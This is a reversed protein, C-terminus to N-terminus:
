EYSELLALLFRWTKGISPLYIREDPSHPQRITPGLSIMEMGPCISGIVACELGAHIAEVKPEESFLKAYVEKSRKLLQSSTDPRWAPYSNQKGVEAGAIKGAIAVDESIEDLASEVSSRQSTCIHLKGKEEGVVALNTSTEVLGPVVVSYERAGTPIIRLLSVLKRSFGGAYVEKGELSKPVASVSIGEEAKAYEAAFAKEMADAEKIVRGEKGAPVAVLAEAERPIVNKASGSTISVLGADPSNLIRSLLRSLLKLANARHLHIEAGSHGGTLGGVSIKMGAYNGTIAERCPELVLNTDKGGACGITFVGEDESDLNILIRGKVFDKALAKAGNLGTEEDVTFLLELPPHALGHGEALALCYAIAIGNDAGLSTDKARMWDGEVIQEIPDKSFDHPSDPRKECVMDMHGQLVVVPANEKGPSGPVHIIVNGKKDSRAKLGLASARDLLWRSIKEEHKSRRPVSNLKEFINVIAKTEADM